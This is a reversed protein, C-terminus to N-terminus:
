CEYFTLFYDMFNVSQEMFFNKFIACWFNWFNFYIVFPVINQVVAFLLIVVRLLSVKYILILFCFCLYWWIFFSCLDHIPLERFFYLKRIFVFIFAKFLFTIYNEDILYALNWSIILELYQCLHPFVSLSDLLHSIFWVKKRFIQCCTDPAKCPLVKARIILNIKLFFLCLHVYLSVTLRIIIVFLIGHLMLSWM